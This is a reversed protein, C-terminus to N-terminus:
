HGHGGHCGGGGGGSHHGPWGHTDGGGGEGWASGAGTGSVQIPGIPWPRRRVALREPAAFDAQLFLELNEVHHREFEVGDPIRFSVRQVSFACRGVPAFWVYLRGGRGEIFSRAADSVTVEM